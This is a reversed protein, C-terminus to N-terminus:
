KLLKGAGKSRSLKMLRAKSRKHCYPCTLSKYSYYTGDENKGMQSVTFFNVTTPVQFSRGCNDCKYGSRSSMLAIFMWLGGLIFLITWFIGRRPEIVTIAVVIVALFLLFKWTTGWWDAQRPIFRAV